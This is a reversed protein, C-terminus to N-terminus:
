NCSVQPPYSELINCQKGEPCKVMSCPGQGDTLNVCVPTPLTSDVNTFSVCQTGDSCQNFADCKQETIFSRYVYPKEIQTACGALFLTLALIVVSLIPLTAKM